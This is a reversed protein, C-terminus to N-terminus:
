FKPKRKLEETKNRNRTAIGPMIDKNRITLANLIVKYNGAREKKSSIKKEKRLRAM